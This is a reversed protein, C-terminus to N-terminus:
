DWWSNINNCMIRFLIERCRDQNIHSINLAIRHQREYEDDSDIDFIGEGNLVRKYILPYKEFYPKFDYEQVDIKLESLGEKDECPEFRFNTKEYDMYEMQYFDDQEKQILSVCWSMNRADQQARTHFDREGIYKAQAKLKHKLVEYIYHSDWHRDKYIVPLWYWVSKVGRIFSTHLYRGEFKWWLKLKNLM